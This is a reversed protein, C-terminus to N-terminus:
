SYIVEIFLDNINEFKNVYANIDNILDTSM